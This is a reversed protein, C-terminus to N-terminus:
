EVSKLSDIMDIKKLILHIISNVILSFIFTIIASFAYSRKLIMRIFRISDVEVSAVIMNTLYYGFVLGVAIGIVTYIINEKNIYDDVENDYFGLVKLTAIERQREGININALNYLVVFDLLASSVVLIVVVMDVTKLMDQVSDVQVTIDQISSVGDMDLFEESIREKVSRDENNLSVLMMNTKFTKINKEFFPKTMYIFHTVYNESIGCIKFQHNIDDSDIVEIMDGESVNLFNALKVSLIVGDDSLELREGNKSNILNCQKYFDEKNDVAFINADYGKKGGLVQVSSAMIEAHSEIRKENNAYEKLKELSNTNTLSVAFDYTYVADPNTYQAGTIDRISDRIGFGTLMLATCGAIGIITILGRKKYRFINRAIVKHSFNMKNWILPIKELLIVKGNKPAKPRMLMAPVNKLEKNAVYVTAGMICVLEIVLGLIGFSWRSKAYFEPVTYLLKYMDWVITPLLKFGVVMGIIGGITCSLFVYMIYKSIIVLNTYGMSKLTGIETREEEIMRTMSTLCVLVAIAYFIIPFGAALNEMTKIADKINSYGNNAKRETVYWKAKEIKTVDDKADDLKKQADAIKKNADEKETNFKAENEALEKKGDNLKAKGDAIKKEADAFEKNATEINENLINKQNNIESQASDLSVKGNKIKSEADAIGSEAMARQEMLEAKKNDLMKINKNIESLQKNGEEIQVKQKALEDRKPELATITGEVTMLNNKAESLRTQLEALTEVDEEPTEAIQTDLNSIVGNLIDKQSKLGSLNSDIEAIANEIQPLAANGSEILKKNDNLMKLNSDIEELGTNIQRIIENVEATKGNLQTEGDGLEGRKNAIENEYSSLKNQADTLKQNIEARQTNLENEADKLKIENDKIEKKADDIKKQADAIKEDAEKKKDDLEKQADDLNQNADNVLEDYRIKERESKIKEIKEYKEHVIDNYEDTTTLTKETNNILAYINVYYDFNFINKNVYILFDIKGNGIPANGREFSIYDPSEAIGVITFEKQLINEEDDKNKEDYKLAIKKGIYKEIKEKGSYNIDLLCEDDKEPKRGYVIYPVNINENYEIAKCIEEEEDIEVFSNISKIGYVEKVGDINKVCELDADTLGLTSVISIDYLKNNDAYRDLTDAMDPGCAKLGAFFGVGLFAMVLISLFRRRTKLIERLNNKLISKKM